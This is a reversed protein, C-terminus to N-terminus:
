ASPYLYGPDLPERWRGKHWTEIERFLHQCVLRLHRDRHCQGVPHRTDAAAGQSPQGDGDGDETGFPWQPPGVEKSLGLAFNLHIGVPNSLGRSVRAELFMFGPRRSPFGVPRGPSAPPRPLAHPTPSRSAAGGAWPRMPTRGQARGMSPGTSPRSGQSHETDAPQARRPNSMGSERRQPLTEGPTRGGLASHPRVDNYSDIWSGIIREADLGDRLEHLYVAEYKLSRWLQEIFINDLFRGRGSATGSNASSACWSTGPVRRAASASGSAPGSWPLQVPLNMDLIDWPAAENEM